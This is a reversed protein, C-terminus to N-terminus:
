IPFARFTPNGALDCVEETALATIAAADLFLSGDAGTTILNGVDSSPVSQVSLGAATVTVTDPSNPDPVISVVDGVKQLGLGATSAVVASSIANLADDYSIDNGAAIADGIADQVAEVFVPDTYDFVYTPAHGNTGAPTVTLFGASSGTWPTEASQIAAQDIFAGGDATSAVVLNGTDASVVDLVPFNVTLAGNADFGLTGDINAQLSGAVVSLGLGIDNQHVVNHTAM